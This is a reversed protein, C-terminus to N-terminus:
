NYLFYIYMNLAQYQEITSIIAKVGAFVARKREKERLSEVRSGPFKTSVKGLIIVCMCTCKSTLSCCTHSSM